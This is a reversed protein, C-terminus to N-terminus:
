VKQRIFYYENYFRALISPSAKRLTEVKCYSTKETVGRGQIKTKKHRNLVRVLPELILSGYGFVLLTKSSCIGIVWKQGPLNTVGRTSVPMYIKVPEM